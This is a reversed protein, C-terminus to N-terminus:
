KDQVEFEGAQIYEFGTITKIDENFVFQNTYVSDIEDGDFYNLGIVIENNVLDGLHVLNILKFSHEIDETLIYHGKRGYITNGDIDIRTIKDIRGGIRIYENIQLESNM